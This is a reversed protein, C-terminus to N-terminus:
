YCYWLESLSVLSYYTAALLFFIVFWCAVCIEGHKVQALRHESFILMFFSHGIHWDLPVYVFIYQHRFNNGLSMYLKCMNYYPLSVSGFINMVGIRFKRQPNWKGTMFSTFLLCPIHILYIGLKKWIQKYTPNKSQNSSM